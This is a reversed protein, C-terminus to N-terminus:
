AGGITVLEGGIVLETDRNEPLAWAPYRLPVKHGGAIGPWYDHKACEAVATLLKEYQQRGVLLVDAPIPAVVVDWPASKEVCILEFGALMEGTAALWGDLYFAASLEYAYDAASIGFRRPSVDRATKLDNIVSRLLWDLRGKCLLNTGPDQWVISIEARGDPDGVITGAVPDNRVADRMCLVDQYQTATLISKDANAASFADWAKGRRQGGKWVTFELPFLDPQFVATHEARGLVLADSDAQVHEKYHLLSLRAKKLRSANVADWACYESFPVDKYIGPNPYKPWM